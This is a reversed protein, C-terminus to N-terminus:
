RRGTRSSCFVVNPDAGLGYESDFLDDGFGRSSFGRGSRVRPAPVENYVPRGGARGGGASSFPVFNGFDDYRGAARGVAPGAAFGSFPFQRVDDYLPAHFAGYFGEDDEGEDDYGEYFARRGGRRAPMSGFSNVDAFTGTFLSSFPDGGFFARFIDNATRFDMPSAGYGWMRVGGSTWPVGFDDDDDGDFDGRGRSQRPAPRASDGKGFRDYHERKAEDGLVAFAESIRKFKDTAQPSQNKDPHWKLALKRYAKKVEDASADRAIGLVTYYDDSM